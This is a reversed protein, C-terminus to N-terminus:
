TGVPLRVGLSFRNAGLLGSGQSWFGVFAEGELLGLEVVPDFVEDRWLEAEVFVELRNTFAFRGGLGASVSYVDPSVFRPDFYGQDGWYGFWRGGVWLYPKVRWALPPEVLVDMGVDPFLLLGCGGAYMFRLHALETRFRFAWVPGYELEIAPGVWPDRFTVRGFEIGASDLYVLGDGALETTVGLGVRLAPRAFAVTSSLVCVVSLTILIRTRELMFVESEGPSGPM